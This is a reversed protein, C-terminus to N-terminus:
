HALRVFAAVALFALGLQIIAPDTLPTHGLQARRDQIYAQAQALAPVADSGAGTSDLEAQYAAYAADTPDACNPNTNTSETPAHCSHHCSPLADDYPCAVSLEFMLQEAQDRLRQAYEPDDAIDYSPDPSAASHELLDATLNAAVTVDWVRNYGYPDVVDFALDLGMQVMTAANSAKTAARAMSTVMKRVAARTAEKAVARTLAANAAAGARKILAQAVASVIAEAAQDRAVDLLITSFMYNVLQTTQTEQDSM